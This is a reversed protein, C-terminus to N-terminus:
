TGEMRTERHMTQLRMIHRSIIFFCLLHVSGTLAWSIPYSLYLVPLEHHGRFYTFIWLVRFGCAGLISVVMPVVAFGLGRISGCIVDMMGCLFYMTCIAAMRMRGYTIAAPDGTYISLLERGFLYFLNGMVLGVVAVTTLCVTLVRDIRKWEGVGYNQSTFSVAAQYFANMSVYVFGELNAAAANGAMAVAGFSNVSSQILVNSFAFIMGQVGAPIGIRLILKLKHMSVALRSFELRYCEETGMLCRVILVASVGESLVTALAVGAVDMHLTIVFFLNLLVNIVGSIMLFFMPRRTDGVARLISSGLNYLFLVPSGIFYIRMYLVALPLVEEPTGMIFLVPRAIVIGLIGVGIGGIVSLMVSTHVTESMNQKEGAAYYRAALVNVGVSLGVFLSIILNILSGTSGVAAISSAGNDSFRGVVVIDAANFLLQLVSSLMLPITFLLLKGLIPGRVMDIEYQRSSKMDGTDGGQAM